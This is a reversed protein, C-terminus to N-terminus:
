EPQIKECIQQITDPSYGKDDHATLFHYFRVFRLSLNETKSNQLRQLIIQMIQIFYAELAASLSM